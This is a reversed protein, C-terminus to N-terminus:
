PLWAREAASWARGDVERRLVPDVFAAALALAEDFAVPAGRTAKTWRRRWDAEQGAALRLAPPLPERLTGAALRRASERQVAVDLASGDVAQQGAVMALDALDRARSSFTADAGHREFIACVKDALQSPLALM